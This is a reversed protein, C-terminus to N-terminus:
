PPIEIQQQFETRLRRWEIHMWPTYKDPETQLETDLQAPTFWRWAAIESSNIRPSGTERGIYVSCLEHETGLNGYAVKYDFKFLFSPTVTLGLEQQARRVVADDILEGNRPHSCCANSWYGPWLRKTPHRQQVLTEGADNFVFLSFARHLVGDGDHCARKDLSGIQRDNQDVLILPEDESSVVEYRRCIVRLGRM